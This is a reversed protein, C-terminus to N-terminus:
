QLHKKQSNRQIKWFLNEESLRCDATETFNQWIQINRKGALTKGAFYLYFLWIHKDKKGLFDIFILNSFNVRFYM